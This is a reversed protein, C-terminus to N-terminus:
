QELTESLLKKCSRIFAQTQPKQVIADFGNHDPFFLIATYAIVIAQGKLEQRYYKILSDGDIEPIRIDVILLDYENKKLFELAQRGNKASTITVKKILSKIQREAVTSCNDNDEIILVRLNEM